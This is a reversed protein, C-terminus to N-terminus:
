CPRSTKFICAIKIKKTGEDVLQICTASKNNVLLVEFGKLVTEAKGLRNLSCVSKKKRKAQFKVLTCLFLNM